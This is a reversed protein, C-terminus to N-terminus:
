ECTEVFSSHLCEKFHFNFSILFLPFLKNNELSVRVRVAISLMISCLVAAINFDFAFSIFHYIQQCRSTHANATRSYARKAPAYDVILRHNITWACCPQKVGVCSDVWLMSTLWDAGAQKQQVARLMQPQFGDLNRAFIRFSHRALQYIRCRM